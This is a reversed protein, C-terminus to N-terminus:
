ADRVLLPTKGSRTRLPADRTTISVSLDVNSFDFARALSDVEIAPDRPVVLLEIVGPATQRLQVHRAMEFGLHHRGFILATLGIARGHADLVFEGIRGDTIRFRSVVGEDVDADIGDGTDYRVFPSVTNWYSTGILHTAGDGVSQAECWGYTLLPVYENEVDEYALICMESHGYWAVIACELTGTIANRYHPAPFESGLLAGKISGKMGGVLEPARASAASCFDAVLSPYGHLWRVDRLRGSRRLWDFVAERDMYADVVLENHVANYRVPPGQLSKGRLTLKLDRYDYGRREWIWHMHGWERAFANADVYFALPEGQSGGTNVLIRGRGARSRV